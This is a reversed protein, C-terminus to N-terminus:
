IHILSLGKSTLTVTASDVREGHHNRDQYKLTLRLVNDAYASGVVEFHENDTRIIFDRGDAYNADGVSFALTGTATGYLDTTQIPTEADTGSHVMVVPDFTAFVIGFSVGTKSAVSSTGSVTIMTDSVAVVTTGDALSDTAWSSFYYENDPKAYAYITVMTSEAGEGLNNSYGM